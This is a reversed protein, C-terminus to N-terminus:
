SGRSHRTSRRTASLWNSIVRALVVGAVGLLNGAIVDKKWHQRSQVREIDIAAIAGAAVPLARWARLGDILSLSYATTLAAHSSPFSQFPHKEFLRPRPAHILRKLLKAVVFTAPVAVLLETMADRRRRLLVATALTLPLIRKPKALNSFLEKMYTFSM